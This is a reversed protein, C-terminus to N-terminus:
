MGSVGGSVVFPMVQGSDSTLLILKERAVVMLQGSFNYSHPCYVAAFGPVNLMELEERTIFGVIRVGGDNTIPVLVPRNFRKKDGVFADVLDKISSYVIKVLPARGFLRETWQFLTRGVINSALVGIAFISLITIGFGVGPFPADILRDIRTFTQYVVWVTVGIPVVIALGRLFYKIILNM